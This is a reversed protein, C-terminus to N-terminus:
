SGIAELAREAWAVGGSKSRERRPVFGVVKGHLTELGLKRGAQKWRGPISGRLPLLLLSARLGILDLLVM